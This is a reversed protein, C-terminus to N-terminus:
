LSHLRVIELDAPNSKLFRPPATQLLFGLWGSSSGPPIKKIFRLPTTHPSFGLFGGFPDAPNHLKLPGWNRAFRRTGEDKKVGCRKRFEQKNTFSSPYFINHTTQQLKSQPFTALLRVMRRVLRVPNHKHFQHPTPHPSFGM